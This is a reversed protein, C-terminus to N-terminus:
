PTFFSHGESINDAGFELAMREKLKDYRAHESDDSTGGGAGHYYLGTLNDSIRIHVDITVAADDTARFKMRYQGGVLAVELGHGVAHDHVPLWEYGLDELMAGIEAPMYPIDTVDGPDIKLVKDSGAAYGPQCLVVISGLFAAMLYGFWVPKIVTQHMFRIKGPSQVVAIYWVTCVIAPLM